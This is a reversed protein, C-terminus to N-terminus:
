RQNAARYAEDAQDLRGLSYLASQRALHLEVLTATDHPDALTLAGDHDADAAAFWRGVLDDAPDDSRFPEGMPSLFVNGHRM